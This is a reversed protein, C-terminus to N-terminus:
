DSFCKGHVPSVGPGRLVAVVVSHVRGLTIATNNRCSFGTSHGM